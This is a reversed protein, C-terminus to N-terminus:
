KVGIGGTPTEVPTGPVPQPQLTPKAARVKSILRQGELRVTGAGTGNILSELDFLAEERIRRAQESVNPAEGSYFTSILSAAVLRKTIYPIPDPYKAEGNRTIQKLPVAYTSSLRANVFEDIASQHKEVEETPINARGTGISLVGDLFMQVEQATGSYYAM